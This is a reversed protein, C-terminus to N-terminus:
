QDKIRLLLLDFFGSGTSNTYGAVVVDGAGSQVASSAWDAESGGFSKEWMVNGDPDLKVLYVDNNFIKEDNVISKTTGAVFYGGDSLELVANGFDYFPKNGLTKVWMQNGEADTKIVHMDMVDQCDTYGTLLAGGDHTGVMGNCWDFAHGRPGEAAYTKSWIEEGQDDTRILYFDTNGSFSGSTAGILLGGDETLAISNAM